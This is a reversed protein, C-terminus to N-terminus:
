DDESVGLRYVRIIFTTVAALAGVVMFIYRLIRDFGFLWDLGYGILGGIIIGALAEYMFSTTVALLKYLFKRDSQANKDPM